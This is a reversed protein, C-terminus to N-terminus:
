LLHSNVACHLGPFAARDDVGIAKAILNLASQNLSQSAREEFANEEGTSADFIRTEGLVANGAEAVSRLDVDDQEIAFIQGGSACSFGSNDANGRGDSVGNEGCRTSSQSVHGERRFVVGDSGSGAIATLGECDVQRGRGSSDM